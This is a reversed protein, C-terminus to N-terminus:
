NSVGKQYGLRSHVRSYSFLFFSPQLFFPLALFLHLFLL